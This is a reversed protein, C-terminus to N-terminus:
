SSSVRVITNKAKFADLEIQCPLLFQEGDEYIDRAVSPVKWPCTMVWFDGSASLFATLCLCALTTLCTLQTERM